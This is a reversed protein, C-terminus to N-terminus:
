SHSCAAAKAHGDALDYDEAIFIDIEPCVEKLLDPFYRGQLMLMTDSLICLQPHMTRAMELAGQHWRAVQIDKGAGNDPFMAWIKNPHQCDNTVVLIKSHTQNQM